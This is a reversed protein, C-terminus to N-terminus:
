VHLHLMILFVIKFNLFDKEYEFRVFVLRGWFSWGEKLMKLKMCHWSNHKYADQITRLRRYLAFTQVIM